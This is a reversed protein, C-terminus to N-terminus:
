KNAEPIKIKVPEQKSGDDRNPFKSLYNNYDEIPGTFVVGDRADINYVVTNAPRTYIIAAAIAFLALILLIQFLPKMYEIGGEVVV